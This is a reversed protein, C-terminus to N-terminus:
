GIDSGIRAASMDTNVALSVDGSKQVIYTIPKIAMDKLMEITMKIRMQKSRIMMTAISM